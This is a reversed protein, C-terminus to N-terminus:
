ISGLHRPLRLLLLPRLRRLAVPLTPSPLRLLRLLPFLLRARLIPLLHLRLRRLFALHATRREGRDRRRGLRSVLILALVLLLRDIDKTTALLLAGDAVAYVDSSYTLSAM